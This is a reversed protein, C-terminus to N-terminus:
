LLASLLAFLWHASFGAVLGGLTHSLLAKGTLDNCGLVDMM